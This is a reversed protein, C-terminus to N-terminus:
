KLKLYNQLLEVNRKTIKERRQDETITPPGSKTRCDEVWEQRVLEARKAAEQSIRLSSGTIYRLYEEPHNEKFWKLYYRPIGTTGKGGPLNIRGHTFVHRWYKEIWKKGIAYKSSKKSIPQFEHDGDKGHVLKKTAYRACYGASEITVSGFEAIGKGWLRNLVNSTFVQDNRENRRLPKSDPPRFGFIIAHWHPRKTKEGYEGTVFCGIQKNPYAFRLRKMFKQFDSYVLKPGPLQEDSYTLTIFSNEEHCQAEHVCRLAWERAYQLRCDLCKGCPLKFSAYEKSFTKQSWVITKGDAAFGVTRPRTCRM